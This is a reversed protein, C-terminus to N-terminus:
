EWDEDETLIEIVEEDGQYVKDVSIFHLGGGVGEYALVPTSNGDILFHGGKYGEVTIGILSSLFEVVEGVTQEEVKETHSFAPERYDSRHSHVSDFDISKDVDDKIVVRINRNHENLSKILENITLQM